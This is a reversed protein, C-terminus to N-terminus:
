KIASQQGPRLSPSAEVGSAEQMGGLVAAIAEQSTRRAEWGLEERARRTDMVPVQLAMDIWGPDSRQLRLQWSAWALSRLAGKPIPISSRAGVVPPLTTSDLVPEAAINFAGRAGSVLALRYAEAVDDAHVAQFVMGPPMPLIPPRLRAVQVPIFPGLFFRGVESAQGSQFILGPRLRAIAMEPHAAEVDDLLREVAAKHRSYHSTHIGGTPWKEDIRRDKPAPSYAGVSSAYVIQRVGAAVAADFVNSSGTVNTAFLESERHNPQILWALHVVADCGAFAEKLQAQAAPASIDVSRWKAHRYPEAGADPTRREIGIVDHGGEAGLRRLLATGVNGTAGVIAIRM